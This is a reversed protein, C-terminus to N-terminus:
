RNPQSIRFAPSVGDENTSSPAYSDGNPRMSVFRNNSPAYANRFFWTSASNNYQKLAPAYNTNNTGKLSYYDLQRSNFRATDYISESNNGFVEMSSLLYIKDYSTVSTEGTTCIYTSWDYDGSCGVGSVVLTPMIYSKLDSPLANYISANGNTSSNLYTRMQSDRWGGVNSAPSNMVHTAIVNSCELVLGCATQSFGTTSCEEPTSLNAIRLKCISDNTDDIEGDLNLDLPVDRTTGANM